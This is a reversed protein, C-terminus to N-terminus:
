TFGRSEKVHTDTENWKVFLEHYPISGMVLKGQLVINSTGLCLLQLNERKSWVDIIFFNRQHMICSPITCVHACREDTFRSFFIQSGKMSVIVSINKRCIIASKSSTQDFLIPALCNLEQQARLNSPFPATTASSQGRGQADGFARTCCQTM